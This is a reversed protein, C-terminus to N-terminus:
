GELEVMLGTRWGAGRLHAPIEAMDFDYSDPESEVDIVDQNQQASGIHVTKGGGLNITISFASGTSAEVKAPAEFGAAKAFFKLSELQTHFSSGVEKAKLYVDSMIDEAAIASRMKFTVGSVRLELKKEEVQKVFSPLVKLMEWQDESFGYEAAVDAPERIGLSIELVMKPPVEVVQQYTLQTM